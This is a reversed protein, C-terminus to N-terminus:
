KVPRSSSHMTRLREALVRMREDETEPLSQPFLAHWETQTADKWASRVLVDAAFRAADATTLRHPALTLEDLREFLDHYFWDVIPPRGRGRAKRVNIGLNSRLNEDRWWILEKQVHRLMLGLEKRESGPAVVHVLVQYIPAFLSDIKQTLQERSRRQRLKPQRRPDVDVPFLRLDALRRVGLQRIDSRVSPLPRAM